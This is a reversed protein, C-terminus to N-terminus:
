KLAKCRTNREDLLEEIEQIAKQKDTTGKLANVRNLIQQELSSLSEVTRPDSFKAKDLLKSLKEKAAADKENDALIKIETKISSIFQTQKEVKKDLCDVRKKGDIVTLISIVTAGLLVISAVIMLWTPFGTILLGLLTLITEIIICAIITKVPAYWLFGNNSQDEEAVSTGIYGLLCFMLLESIYAIWFPKGKIMPTAFYIVSIVVFVVVLVGMFVPKSKKM